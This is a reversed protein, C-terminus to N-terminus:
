DAMSSACDGVASGVDGVTDAVSSIGDGISSAIGTVTDVVTDFIGYSTVADLADGVGIVNDGIGTGFHKNHLQQQSPTLNNPTPNVSTFYDGTSKIGTSFSRSRMSKAMSMQDGIAGVPGAPGAAGVTYAVTSGANIGLLGAQAVVTELSGGGVFAFSWKYTDELEKVLGKLTTNPSGPYNKSANEQGDTFVTVTVDINDDAERGKLRERLMDIALGVADNLATMGNPKYTEDNLPVFEKVDTFTFFTEVDTDFCIMSLYTPIGLLESDEQLKKVYNNIGQITTAKQYSMSSSRDIVLVDYIEKAKNSTTDLKIKRKPESM